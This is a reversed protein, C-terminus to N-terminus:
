RTHTSTTTTTTSHEEDADATHRKLAHSHARGQASMRDEARDLGTDRDTASPGNSNASKQVTTHSTTIDGNNHTTTTSIAARTETARAIAPSAVSAGSALLAAGYIIAAFRM